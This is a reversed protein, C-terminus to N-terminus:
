VVPRHGQGKRQTQDLSNDLSGQFELKLHIQGQLGGAEAEQLKKVVLGRSLSFQGKNRLEKTSRLTERDRLCRCMENVIPGVVTGAKAARSQASSALVM